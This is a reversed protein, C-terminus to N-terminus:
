FHWGLSIGAGLQDMSLKITQGPGMANQGHVTEQPSYFAMASVELNDSVSRTLGATIHWQQVGPALINFLVESDPIPQEGYSLGGRWTQEANQQWQWGLKVVSIDNWGFGPGDNSGLPTQAAFPNSISAVESYRIHQVDLLFWHNEVGSWALGANFMQPIDFNGQEAFLGRYDDFESMKIMKRWSVGGRLHDSLQGQWGVQFGYGWAHDTGENSLAQPASSMQGFGSLGTASFRQYALIPSIGIAHGEKFQWAWTPAIFLQELNVGADGAFFTGGDTNSYETNMGGNAFVSVGLSHQESIPRNYGLHPIVFAENASEFTGEMLYFAGPQPSGGEVQYERRPSFVEAGFDSRHGVFAMGAPNTAAAISDQALATGAGAMGQNITSYGHSFYGNTALAQAPALAAIFLVHRLKM